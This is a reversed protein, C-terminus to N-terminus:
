RYVRPADSAGRAAGQAFAPSISYSFAILAARCGVLREFHVLEGRRM